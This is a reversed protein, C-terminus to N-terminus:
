NSSLKDIGEKVAKNLIDDELIGGTKVSYEQRSLNQSYYEDAEARDDFVLAKDPSFFSLSEIRPDTEERRQLYYISGANKMDIIGYSESEPDQSEGEYRTRKSIFPNASDRETIIRESIAGDDDLFITEARIQVGDANYETRSSMTERFSSDGSESYDTRDVILGGDPNTKITQEMGFATRGSERPYISYSSTHVTGDDDVSMGELNKMPGRLSMRRLEMGADEPTVVRSDRVHEVVNARESEDLARRGGDDEAILSTERGEGYEVQSIHREVMHIGQPNDLIRADVGLQTAVDKAVEQRAEQVRESYQERTDGQIYQHTKDAQAGNSDEVMNAWQNYDQNYGESSENQSHGHREFLRM